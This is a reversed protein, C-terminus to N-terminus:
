QGDAHGDDEPEQGSGGSERESAEKDRRIADLGARALRYYKWM